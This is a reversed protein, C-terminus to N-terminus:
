LNDRILEFIETSEVTGHLADAGLGKGYAVMDNAANRAPDAYIAAPEATSQLPTPEAGQMRETEADGGFEKGNQPQSMKPGAPGTAWTLRTTVQSRRAASVDADADRPLDGNLNMGGVAVDGCVLITSKTGAYELAVSIARDLELTEALTQDGRNNQASKRMLGADVVLLYGGSNFQLLEISRRVMDALRPQNGPAEEEDAFALETASFVGFVKAARWRPVAELQELDTVLDYGFSRLELLLDDGDSRRGGKTAPLFDAAGGGLVVDIDAKEVLERAMEEWNNESAAHGYFSAPTADTLLTNTVLGTARGSQRALELLNELEKGDEDLGIMGNRVKVGTALATAAAAQDPTASDRSYNKLLATYDLSDLTLPTEPGGAYIRTAAVRGSDLGAGIFLIIGFPKQVVWTRFYFIGFAFFVILCFLALLQNRWKM